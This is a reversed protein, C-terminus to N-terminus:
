RRRRKAGAHGLNVRPGGGQPLMARRIQVDVGTEGYSWANVVADGKDPSRGIRKAIVEKAECLIGSSTLKWQVASLDALLERDPPLAVPQGLGPELAERFKWHVEARKNAFKFKGSRDRGHGANSGNHGFVKLGAVNQNLHSVVGSGYGGGVDVVIPCGDRMYMIDRAALDIPDVIGKLTEALINDYWYGHRRAWTNQDGGGLAVDHSLVSMPINAGGNPTWRGMAIKVWSTPFLQFPTDKLASNFKGDRFASRMEDPMAALKNDYNTMALDPNDELRARIFTRSVPQVMEGGVEIPDPGDCEFDKGDITTFWRLEGEEAPDPHAEDLWPAWYKVVWLGEPTTPPNGTCVVRCRQGPKTSRNWGKIFRFQTETFDSIEDFGILDHPNGKYKQKDDEFQCGGIDILHGSVRWVHEQGNWGDRSGLLEVYRDVLAAAEKNTRRLILSRVHTTISLGCLLDTKGGGAQGGYFLEDAETEVALTQPGPNQVWLMGQTAEFALASIESQEESSLDRYSELIEALLGSM